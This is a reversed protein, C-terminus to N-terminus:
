PLHDLDALDKRRGAARKNAKLHALSIIPVEVGDLVGVVRAAYCEDFTLGTLDTLLDIRLPPCGVQTVTDPSALLGESADPIDPDFDRVAAAVKAANATGPGVWVDMAGTSRVYGHYIVAYAGVLLYDAGRANLSRLFGSFAPPLLSM